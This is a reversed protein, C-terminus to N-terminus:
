IGENLYEEIKDGLTILDFQLAAERAHHLYEEINEPTLRCETTNLCTNIKQNIDPHYHGTDKYFEIQDLFSQNEFGYVFLNDIKRTM